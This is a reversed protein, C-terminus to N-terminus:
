TRPPPPLKALELWFKEIERVTIEMGSADTPKKLYCNAHLAYAQRIDSPADSTSLVLVPITALKPDEKVEALVERGNKKPLNLDLLVLSPRLPKQFPEQGRLIQLAEVGDSAIVLEPGDPAPRLFYRLLEVDAPNDEVVM